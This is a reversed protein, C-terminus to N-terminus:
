IGNKSTTLGSLIGFSSGLLLGGIVDSLWHEGLYVRSVFMALLFSALIVQILTRSRFKNRLLLYTMLFLILFATRTMHGSPYSYNAHIYYPPLPSQFIGRYFFNPPAPHYIFLKGFLEIALSLPLFFLSFASLWYKKILTILLFLLWILGTIEALGLLSFLSFPLDLSGPLRDQLKVTTDFDLSTFTEKAVLYSFLVFLIFLCISLFLLHKKNM